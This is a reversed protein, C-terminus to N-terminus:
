EHITLSYILNKLKNQYDYDSYDDVQEVTMNFNPSDNKKQYVRAAYYAAFPAIWKEDQSNIAKAELAFNLSEDLKGLVFAAEALNILIEAKLWETKITPLLNTLSDYAANYRGSEILNVAQILDKENTSLYRKTYIEGKRKAYQDDELDMNGSGSNKFYKEASKRDDLFEYSLALRYNAIGTYDNTPTSKLFAHYYVKASDFQNKKFFIDGVLFNSFSIIQSFKPNDVHVIRALIKQAEKLNREKVELVAYSYNFLLNEPYKRVLNRLYYLSAENEFLVEALIQSLYYQAEVKSLNGNVAAKKIFSIGTEKDGKIGALSLAWQFASPIQGVAFNYLGLGLYADILKPDIELAELLYTESKKSAWVADLYNEERTFAVARYMYNSGLLYNLYASKPNEELANKATELAQDSYSVFSNFDNKERSGLYYWLHIGSLYHYGDPKLPNEKVMGTFLEEAQNWKFRYCLELGEKIERKNNQSLGNISFSNLFLVTLFIKFSNNGLFRIM